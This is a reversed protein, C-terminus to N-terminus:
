EVLNPNLQKNNWLFVKGKQRRLGKMNGKENGHKEARGPDKHVAMVTLVLKLMSIKEYFIDTAVLGVLLRAWGALM